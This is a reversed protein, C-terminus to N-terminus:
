YSLPVTSGIRSIRVNDLYHKGRARMCDAWAYVAALSARASKNNSTM